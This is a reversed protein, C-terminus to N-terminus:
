NQVIVVIYFVSKQLSHGHIQKIFNEISADM